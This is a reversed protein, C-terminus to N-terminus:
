KLAAGRWRPLLSFHLNVFGHAPIALVRAPLLAGYAVAELEEGRLGVQAAVRAAHHALWRCHHVLREDKAEVANALSRGHQKAMDLTGRPMEVVRIYQIEPSRSQNNEAVCADVCRRTGKCKSINLAYGFVVGETPPEIGVNIDVGHQRKARREIRGIAAKIEDPTMKTYQQQLLAGWADALSEAGPGAARVAQAIARRGGLLATVVALLGALRLLLRRTLTPGGSTEPPTPPM